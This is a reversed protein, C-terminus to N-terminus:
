SDIRDQQSIWSLRERIQVMARRVTKENVQLQAAIEDLTYEELRLRFIEAHQPKLVSTLSEVIDTLVVADEPNANRALQSAHDVSYHHADLSQERRADRKQAQHKQSLTRTKNLTITVLVKWLDEDEQFEFRKGEEVLKARKFFTRFVTQVVDGEDVRSKLRNGIHSSAVQLVSQVFRRYLETAAQEDGNRWREVLDKAGSDRESTM